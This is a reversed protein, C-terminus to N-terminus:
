KISVLEMVFRQEDGAGVISVKFGKKIYKDYFAKKETDLQYHSGQIYCEQFIIDVLKQPNLTVFEKTENFDNLKSQLNRLLVTNKFDQVESQAFSDMFCYNINADDLKDLILNSTKDSENLIYFRAGALSRILGFFDSDSSALILSETNEQYYEKCAGTAMVIDVLSKNDLVRQIEKHEIPLKILENIYDWADSTNVDDYLIVKKIKKLNDENLNKFVSAFRYPDVNECDVLIAINISKEIFDYISDKDEKTADIVYENAHFTEDFSAYLIKLFKEDNFLINGYYSKIKEEPWNLYTGYPYFSSYIGIQKRVLNIASIVKKAQNPNSISSGNVGAYCGPMLFISKVYEWKIWSPILDKILDIKELIVQNIYAIHLSLNVNVHVIEIGRNRLYKILDVSVLDILTEIPELNMKRYTIEKYNRIFENRLISLARIKKANDNEELELIIDQKFRDTKIVSDKVGILYAIKSVIDKKYNEYQDIERIEDIFELEM